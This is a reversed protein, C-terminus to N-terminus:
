LSNLYTEVNDLVRMFDLYSKFIGQKLENEFDIAINYGNTLSFINIKHKLKHVDEAAKTYNKANFSTIFAEKESPFENKIIAILRQKFEQDGNAIEDLYSDNTQESYSM